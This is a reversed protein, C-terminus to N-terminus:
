RDRGTAQDVAYVSGDWGGFYVLGGHVAATSNVTGGTRFRWRLAGSALDLALFDKSGSGIYVTGGDIVPSSNIGTSYHEHPSTRYKWRIAGTATEVGYVEFDVTGVVAIGGGVAVQSAGDGGGGGSTLLKHRVAGTRADLAVLDGVRNGIWALDGAGVPAAGLYQGLDYGWLKSGTRADLCVAEPTLGVLVTGNHVTATRSVGAPNQCRWAVKRTALDVATVTNGGVVYAREADATVNAWQFDGIGFGADETAWVSSGTAPDLAHLRGDMCVLLAGDVITYADSLREAARDWRKVGTVLDLAYLRSDDFSTAAIVVGAQPAVLLRGDLGDGTDYRWRATDRAPERTVRTIGAAAAGAATLVAGAAM